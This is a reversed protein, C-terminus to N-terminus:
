HVMFIISYSPKKESLYGKSIKYKDNLFVQEDMISETFDTEDDSTFHNSHKMEKQHDESFLSLPLLYQEVDCSEGLTILVYSRYIFTTNTHESCIFININTLPLLPLLFLLYKSM